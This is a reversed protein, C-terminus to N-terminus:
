KTIQYTQMQDVKFNPNKSKVHVKVGTIKKWFLWRRKYQFEPVVLLSDQTVYSFGHIYPKTPSKPNNIINTIGPNTKELEALIKAKEEASTYQTIKNYSYKEPVVIKGNVDTWADKYVFDFVNNGLNITPMETTHLTDIKQQLGWKIETLSQLRKAQLNLNDIEAYLRSNMMKLEDAKVTLSNVSYALEKNKTERVAVEFNSNEWNSKFRDREASVAKYEQWSFYGAGGFVAIVIIYVLIKKLLNSM